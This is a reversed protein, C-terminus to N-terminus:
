SIIVSSSSELLEEIDKKIQNIYQELDTKSTITKKPAAYTKAKPQTLKVAEALASAFQGPLAAIKIDWTNLSEHQLQNLMAQADLVKVEPRLLIQHKALIKQREDSEIKLFHENADLEARLDDYKANFKEKVQQLSKNLLDTLRVALPGVLDPEHFLLRDERVADMEQKLQEVDPTVPAHQMLTNLMRWMQERKTVLQSKHSWDKFKAILDEQQELMSGLRQNGDLNEIDKVFQVSIPEPFPSDGSVKGALDKLQSLFANSCVFEDGSKCSIGAEQYIKRIKIRDMASLTHTERKFAAAGIKSQNLNTEPTSIHETLRLMLIVTDIADQSWGYPSRMFHNRIEKGSKTGNAIFRLIETAIPHDKSEKDWGIRKMAEPDNAIAKTLAKDWDKYDGKTFDPFQRLATSELAEKINEGISGQDVKNGGALFISAEKCINNIIDQIAQLALGKRTEMSRQAQQGEPTGPLGKADLTQKAALYKIIEGRLEQDRQKKVYAYALPTNAGEGRIDQMLIAENDFWGDKVWIHLKNETNPKIQQNWVEFDRKQKSAGQLVNITKTREKIFNLIKEKRLQEILDEGSPGNLKQAQKSYEQEWEAGVKTQLKFEDDVPMLVKKDVLRKILDKVKTRFRDSPEVLNDILLDAITDEDSKLRNSQGNSPLRDMLFVASLIRGELLGDGGQAKKEQILNNTENLLLANQLLQQQKQDFIYDAPIVYGVGKNAVHKLSDDVIRLQSRLQGSTGATDIVQLVKKWFKRTSPLIPYDAVLNYKDDTQYGFDTGSLNRSIEGLSDELKKELLKIATAKKQLVTKRTVTEVDTDSLSVKVSFRDQLPQLYPTESLASQGTAVLLFKGDFNSSLEQALNQIDITKNGDTGIFQQVEDLVIITCPVKTGYFLPLAENKITEILQERSITDVRKFNAKFNEKVKAENEAFEPKLQLLCKALVSSVFLNEYEKRFDKGEAEVLAKLEDLIGEQRAWYVFKFHHYQQPLKLANLFLQLFSYRIDHSPFDKLTGAVSLKGYLKQKRDLEVFLDNVDDPLTKLSRATAGDPFKFDEWLYGLIKVLHSKGSGFFGSVWAAPQKPSDIHKLYTQLIRVLGQQYEGECVFTKLEHRLVKLGNENHSTNIEVVGDNVLNNDDPNLEFLDKNNM